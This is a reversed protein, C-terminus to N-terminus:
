KGPSKQTASRISRSPRWLASWLVGGVVVVPLSLMALGGGINAGVVGATMVRWCWGVYVGVIVLPLAFRSEILRVGNRRVSIAVVCAAAIAVTLAAVGIATEQARSLSPPEFMYDLGGRRAPEALDGVLWWTVVPSSVVIAWLSVFALRHRM